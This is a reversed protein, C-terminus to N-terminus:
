EQSLSVAPSASRQRRKLVFPSLGLFFLGGAGIFSLIRAPEQWGLNQRFYFLDRLGEVSFRFPVWSYLLSRTMHPLAEYPLSLIPLGFFFLIFLLPMGVLGMYQLVAAQVLFFACFALLLFGAVPWFDPIDLGIVRVNLLLIAAVALLGFLLGTGIQGLVLSFSREGSRVKRSAQLQIISSILAAMWVLQTLAVPANGGATNAAIPHVITEKLQLPAALAAAQATNLSDGRKKLEASLQSRLQANIAAVTKETVQVSANAGAANMGQNIRLEVEASAAQPTAISLLHQTLDAPLILAAYADQRDLAAAAASASAATTWKLTPATASAPRAETLSQQILKGYNLETGNPLKAGTDGMVLMVPLDKPTPSVTPGMLASSLILIIAAVLAFGIWLIKQRFLGKVNKM